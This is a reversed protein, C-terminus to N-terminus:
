PRGARLRGRTLGWLVAGYLAIGSGVGSVLGVGAEGGGALFVVFGAAALVTMATALWHYMPASWVYGLGYFHLGVVLAVWAVSVEFRHLVANIVALGGFLALVEIAVVIWYGRGMFRGARDPRPGGAPAAGRPRLVAIILAAAALAAGVRLVQPWPDDLKGCNGAIFGTGFGTAIISGIIHGPVRRPGNNEGSTM